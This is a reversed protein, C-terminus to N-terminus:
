SLISNFNFNLQAVHKPWVQGDDLFQESTLVGM